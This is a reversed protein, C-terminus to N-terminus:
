VICTSVLDCSERLMQGDSTNVSVPVLTSTVSFEQIFVLRHDAVGPMNM